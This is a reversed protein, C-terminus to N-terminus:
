VELDYTVRYCNEDDLKEEEKNWFFSSLAKEVKDEAELDKYRSYIDVQIHNIKCYVEGDAAFNNTYPVTYVAFPMEPVDDEPFTGFAVPLGSTELLSKFEELEM